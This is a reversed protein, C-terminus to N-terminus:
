AAPSSRGRAARYAKLMGRGARSGRLKRVLKERWRYTPRLYSRELAIRTDELERRLQEESQRLRASELLLAKIADLGAAAVQKESPHDPDAYKTVPPAGVLDHLDGVVDYGRREIEAVWSATVESAWPHVDPPLALRPSGTRRSLTQHALLERV